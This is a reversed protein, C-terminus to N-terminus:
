EDAHSLCSSASEPLGRGVVSDVALQVEKRSFVDTCHGRAEIHQGVLPRPFFSSFLLLFIQLKKDIIKGGRQEQLLPLPPSPVPPTSVDSGDNHTFRTVSCALSPFESVSDLVHQRVVYKVQEAYPM